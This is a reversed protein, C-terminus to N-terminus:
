ITFKSKMDEIKRATGLPTAKELGSGEGVRGKGLPPPLTPNELFAFYDGGSLVFNINQDWAPNKNKINNKIKEEMLNSIPTFIKEMAESAIKGAENKSTGIENEINLTYSDLDELGILVLFTETQLNNIESETLLSKKGIEEAISAWDLSNIADQSDKPLKVLEEKIIQKLKETM